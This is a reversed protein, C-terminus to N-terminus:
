IQMPQLKQDSLYMMANFYSNWHEVAYFIVLTAIMPKVLHIAIKFLTQIDNAGDIKAAEYIEGPVTRFYNIAIMLNFTNIATPLLMVWRTNYLGLNNILIYNPIMGGSFFMTIMILIFLIKRLCFTKQTLVFAGTITMIINILTGCITYFITNLYSQGMEPNSLVMSFAQLSFGKPLLLVEGRYAAAPDSFAMSFVYVIPYLTILGIVLLLAAIIWYSATKDNGFKKSM